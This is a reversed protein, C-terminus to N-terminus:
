LGSFSDGSSGSYISRVVGLPDVIGNTVTVTPGVLAKAAETHLIIKNITKAQSDQAAALFGAYINIIPTGVVTRYDIKGGYLNIAGLSAATILAFHNLVDLTTIVAGTTQALLNGAINRLLTTTGGLLELSSNQQLNNRAANELLTHTASTRVTGAKIVTNVFLGALLTIEAQSTAPNIYLGAVNATGATLWYKSQPSGYISFVGSFAYDFADAPTGLSGTYGDQVEGNVLTVAPDTGSTISATGAPILIDDGGVPVGGNWNGAVSADQSAQSIWTKLAM